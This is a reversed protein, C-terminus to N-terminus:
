KLNDIVKQADDHAQKSSSSVTDAAKQYQDEASPTAVPSPSPIPVNRKAPASVTQKSTPVKVSKPDTASAMGAFALSVFLAVIPAAIKHM